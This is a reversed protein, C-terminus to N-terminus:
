RPKSCLDVLKAADADALAITESSRNLLEDGPVPDPLGAWIAAAKARVAAAPKPRRWGRWPKPRSREGRGAAELDAGQGVNGSAFRATATRRRSRRLWRRCM